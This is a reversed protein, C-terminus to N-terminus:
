LTGAISAPDHGLLKDARRAPTLPFSMQPQLIGFVKQQKMGAEVFAPVAM